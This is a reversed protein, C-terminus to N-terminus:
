SNFTSCMNHLVFVIERSAGGKDFLNTSSSSSEGAKSFQLFFGIYGTACDCLCRLKQATILFNNNVAGHYLVLARESSKAAILVFTM